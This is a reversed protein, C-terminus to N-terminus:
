QNKGFPTLPIEWFRGLKKRLAGRHLVFGSRATAGQHKTVSEIPGPACAPSGLEPFRKDSNAGSALM